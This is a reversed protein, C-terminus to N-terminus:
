AAELLYRRAFITVNGALKRSNNSFIIRSRRSLQGSARAIGPHFGTM